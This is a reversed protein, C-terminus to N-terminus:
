DRGRLGAGRRRRSREPGGRRDGHHCRAPRVGRDPPPAGPWRSIAAGPRRCAAAPTCAAQLFEPILMEGLVVNALIVTDIKILARGVAEESWPSRTPPSWPSVPWACTRADIDGIQGISRPCHPISSAKRECRGGGAGSRALGRGSGSGRRRAAAGGAGRRGARGGPGGGVRRRRRFDAGDPSNGQRPERAIGFAAAARRAPSRGRRCEAAFRVSAGDVSPRCLHLASRGSRRMVKPEFPLLAMVHDVYPKMARARGPRWAWVSPCVYDVIPIGPARARVRRAVRHTFEPSDIIVLIDPRAAVAADATQRIRHLIKPLNTVIAGFGIIALEGLPFLSPMGAAAMQPGGVGSFRAAPARQRIAAMLAAGLQDGSEEGAVLFIHPSM